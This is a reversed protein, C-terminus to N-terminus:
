RASQGAFAENAAYFQRMRQNAAIVEALCAKFADWKEGPIAVYLEDDRLGAYLRNGACGLSLTAKGGLSLPLVACSPRGVVNTVPDGAGAKLSAEYILMAQGPTATILVVDPRFAGNDAPGYAVARPPSPLRPIGPVESMELYGNEVMLGVTEQLQSAREPPMEIAHTYSGVACGFHDPAETYFSAGEQARQWFACGAPQEAGSWRPLGAPIADLFAVSVPPARLGLMRQVDADREMKGGDNGEEPAAMM